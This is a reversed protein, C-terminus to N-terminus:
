MHLKKLLLLLLFQKGECKLSRAATVLQQEEGGGAQQHVYQSVSQNKTDEWTLAQLMM